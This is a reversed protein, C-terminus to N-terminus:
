SRTAKAAAELMAPTSDKRNFKSLGTAPSLFVFSNSFRVVRGTPEYTAGDIEKLSFQLWGIEIVDGTVGSIQVRDGTRIGIRGVLMFYGLASVIVSQLAVAVGATLLGFFTALSTLDSALAFAAVVVVTFWLAVRQILLMIARRDGDQVHRRIARRTITGIMALAAIVLAPGALRLSLNKWAKKDQMLVVARWNKLHSTYTDLLLEQKALAVIAPSLTKVLATLEDLRAKQQQLVSLDSAQVDIAIDTHFRKRVFDLLQIRLANSSQKLKDTQLIGADVIRLKRELASVESSLALIGSDTQKVVPPLDSRQTQTGASTQEIVNPVTQALDNIRSLLNGTEEGGLSQKSEVLQRLMASAAELVELRSQAADLAAQLRRREAGRSIVLKKKLGGIHQSAQQRALEANTELQVFQALDPSSNSAIANGKQNGASSMSAVLTDARAFDFSLQVIQEAIPRRDELFVVDVPDTAIQREVSRQRYWGISDTLFDIVQQNSPLGPAAPSVEAWLGVTLVLGLLVCTLHSINDPKSADRQTIRGERWCNQTGNHAPSHHNQRLKWLKLLRLLLFFWSYFM